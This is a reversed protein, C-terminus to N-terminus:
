RELAEHKAAAFTGVGLLAGLAAFLAVVAIPLLVSAPAVGGRSEASAIVVLPPMAGAIAGLVAVSLGTLARPRRRSIAWLAIAFVLGQAAGVFGWAVAMIVLARLLDPWSGNFALRSWLLALSLATGGIMWPIAWTLAITVTARIPGRM